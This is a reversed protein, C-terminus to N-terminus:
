FIFPIGAKEFRAKQVDLHKDSLRDFGGDDRFAKLFANVEQKLEEDGKRLGIAWQESRIPEPRPETGPHNEAFELVSFQDYIFADAKGQAVEIACAGAHDLRILKASPFQKEAFMEGTTGTKVAIRVSEDDLSDPGTLRSGEQVLLALGTRAYADSFDIVKRREPTPTMSSIVLDVKGTSLAAPLGKFKFDRIEVERNLHEGLARALDVSVGAPQGEDDVTEFPPYELEMGVVLKNDEPDSKGCASLALGLALSAAIIAFPNM